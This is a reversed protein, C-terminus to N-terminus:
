VASMARVADPLPGAPISIVSFRRRLAAITEPDDAFVQEISYQSTVVIREPRIMASSGKSEARFSYRDAWRKLDHAIWKHTPDLDDLIVNPQGKYNDWWKNPRKDYYPAYRDRAMRSKGVGAPGYIWVGTVDPADAPEPAYDSAITKLTRYYRIQMDPDIEELKGQKALELTEAWRDQAARGGAAGRHDPLTGFERFDGDKTCYDRNQAPTGRAVEIHARPFHAKVVPFKVRKTYVVYCQMHATGTTPATEKGFVAYELGIQELDPCDGEVPDNITLCWSKAKSKKNTPVDRPSKATKEKPM